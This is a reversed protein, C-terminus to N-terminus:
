ILEVCSRGRCTTGYGFLRLVHEEQGPSLGRRFDLVQRYLAEAEDM